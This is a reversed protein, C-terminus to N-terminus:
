KRIAFSMFSSGSNSLLLAVLSSRLNMDFCGCLATNIAKLSDIVLLILRVKQLDRREVNGKAGKKMLVLKVASEVSARVQQRHPQTWDIRLKSKISKVIDHLIDALFENDLAKEQQYTVAEYFSMEEQTLGLEKM